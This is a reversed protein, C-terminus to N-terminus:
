RLYAIGWPGACVYTAEDAVNGRAHKAPAKWGAAMLIDGNTKDVFGYVMRQRGTGASVIRAYRIGRPDVSLRPPNTFGVESAWHDDIAKQAYTVFRTLNAPITIDAM